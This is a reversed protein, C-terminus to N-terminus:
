VHLILHTMNKNKGKELQTNELQLGYFNERGTPLSESYKIGFKVSVVGRRETAESLGTGSVAMVAPGGPARLPHQRVERPTLFVGEMTVRM